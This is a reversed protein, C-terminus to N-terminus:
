MQAKIKDNVYQHIVAAVMTQYPIGVEAARSKMKQLDRESLRININKSKKLTFRAITEYERGIKQLRVAKKYKGKDYDSLVKKEEQDLNLKKM